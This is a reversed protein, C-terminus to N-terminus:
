EGCCGSPEDLADWPIAAPAPHADADGLEDPEEPNDPALGAGWSVACPQPRAADPDGSIYLLLLM